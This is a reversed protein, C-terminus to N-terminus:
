GGRLHCHLRRPSCQYTQHRCRSCPTCAPSALTYSTEALCAEPKQFPVLVPAGPKLHAAQSDSEILLASMIGGSVEVDALAAV